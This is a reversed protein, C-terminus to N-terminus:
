ASTGTSAPAEVVTAFLFSIAALIIGRRAHGPEEKATM